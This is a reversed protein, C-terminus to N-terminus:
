SERHKMGTIKIHLMAAKLIQKQGKVGVEPDLTHRNAFYISGHLQM